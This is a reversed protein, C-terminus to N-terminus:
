VMINHLHKASRGACGSMCLMCVCGCVCYGSDARIYFKMSLSDRHSRVQVRTHANSVEPLESFIVIPARVRVCVCACLGGCVRSCKENKEEACAPPSQTHTHTFTRWSRSCRYGIETRARADAHTRKGTQAREFPAPTKKAGFEINNYGGHRRRRRRRRQETSDNPKDADDFRISCASNLRKM